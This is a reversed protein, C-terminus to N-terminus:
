PIAFFLDLFRGKCGRCWRCCIRRNSSAMVVCGSAIVAQWSAAVRLCPAGSLDALDPGYVGRVLMSGVDAGFAATHAATALKDAV